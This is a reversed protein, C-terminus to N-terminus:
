WFWTGKLPVMERDREPQLNNPTYRLPGLSEVKEQARSLGQELFEELVAATAAAAVAAAQDCDDGGM